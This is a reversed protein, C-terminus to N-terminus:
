LTMELMVAFYIQYVPILKSVPSIHREVTTAEAQGLLHMWGELPVNSNSKYIPIQM